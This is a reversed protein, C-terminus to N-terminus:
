NVIFCLRQWFWGRNIFKVRKIVKGQHRLIAFLKEFIRVHREVQVQFHIVEAITCILIDKQSEYSDLDSKTVLHM